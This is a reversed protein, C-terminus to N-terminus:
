AVLLVREAGDAPALADEVPKNTLDYPLLVAALCGLLLMGATCLLLVFVSSDILMGSSIQSAMSGLRGSAALVGLATTRLPTPFVESSLCDLANWGGISIANFLCAALLVTVTTHSFAFAVGLVASLGMSLILVARRGLRDMLLASAVNGPLNAAAVIFTSAYVSLELQAKAFLTPMWLILGYWGYSLAFWAASLALTPRLLKGRLLERVAAGRQLDDGLRRRAVTPLEVGPAHAAHLSVSCPACRNRRAIINLSALASGYDGRVYFFRPTEPLYLATALCAGLAPVSCAGAFWRWSLGAWGLMLWALSATTISGIMWFWAVVTIYFGRARVPWLEVAMCFIPPMSAGVGLGSLVRCLVILWWSPMFATALCFVGNCGLSAMLMTRRGLRDSLWGGALGGFLMGLFVGAALAAKQGDSIHQARSLEPIVYSICILEVADAANAWGLINVAMYHFRGIDIREFERDLASLPSALLPVGDQQQNLALSDDDIRDCSANLLPETM